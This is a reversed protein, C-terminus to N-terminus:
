VCRGYKVGRLNSPTLLYIFCINLISLIGWFYKDNDWCHQLMYGQLFGFTDM